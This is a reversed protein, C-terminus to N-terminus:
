CGIMEACGSSGSNGCCIVEAAESVIWQAWNNQTPDMYMWMEQVYRQTVAMSNLVGWFLLATTKLWKRRM